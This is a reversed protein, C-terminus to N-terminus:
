IRNLDRRVGQMAQPLRQQAGVLDTGLQEDVALASARRDCGSFLADPDCAPDRSSLMRQPASTADGSLNGSSGGTQQRDAGGDDSEVGADGRSWLLGTVFLSARHFIGADEGNRRHSEESCGDGDSNDDDDSYPVKQLPGDVAEDHTRRRQLSCDPACDRATSSM